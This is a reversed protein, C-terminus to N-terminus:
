FFIVYQGKSLDLGYNRCGPLGKKYSGTRKLFKFRSDQELIPSIVVSTNDTGGDDIILCEWNQYTQNQISQLTEVILHARNFTALLITIKSFESM